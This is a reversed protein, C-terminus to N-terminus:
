SSFALFVRVQPNRQDIDHFGPFSYRSKRLFVAADAGLGISRYVPVVLRAVAAQIYHDADSGLGSEGKSFVSGNSVSIWQFRYMLSLLSQGNRNLNVQAGAGLGPGYDYERLRERDPVDAIKAYESNVAGLVMALGDLRTGLGWKDSLRYRSYLAAGFSQGGFEFATNNMYDFRQFVALVHNPAASGGLPKEFLDGNIRVVNLPVKEGASFQVIVDMYDFPKRRANDFPNGHAHDFGINFYSQTNETISEGEGISRAGIMLLGSSGPPRWDIAEKPNDHVAGWRGSLIRNFGRVPDVLFAGLERFFRTKGRSQNNLIESSLRYQMEGLAIGGIGTSVMDNLSMPHTEGCCEWFFAGALAYGSSTWYGLGNSRASNFYAAGNFPHIYQNTRFENDDFTFGHDLNEGWSRPSIQNFNANRGYENYASSFWNIGLAEAAAWGYNHAVGWADREKDPSGPEAPGPPYGDDPHWRLGIRAEFTTGSSALGANVPALDYEDVSFYTFSGSVDLALTRTLNWELGPVLGVSFGNAPKTPSDGSEFDEPLPDMTFLESRPHLRALGGRVQLYPRLSGQMRLMRTASLYTQQFGWELEHEYPAEMKFSGFSVGLGFRWPGATRFLHLDGTVPKRLPPKFDGSLSGTGLSVDVGWHPRREAAAATAQASFDDEAAAPRGGALLPLLAFAALFRSM